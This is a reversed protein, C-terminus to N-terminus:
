VISKMRKVTVEYYITDTLCTCDSNLHWTVQYATIFQIVEELIKEDSGGHM